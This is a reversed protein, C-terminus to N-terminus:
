QKRGVPANCCDSKGNPKKTCYKGCETCFTQM